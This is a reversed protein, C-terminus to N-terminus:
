KINLIKEYKISSIELKEFISGSIVNLFFFFYMYKILIRLVLNRLFIEKKKLKTLVFERERKRKIQLIRSELASVRVGVPLQDFKEAERKQGFQACNAQLAIRGVLRGGGGGEGWGGRDM